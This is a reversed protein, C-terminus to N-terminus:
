YPAHPFQARGSAGGYSTDMDQHSLASTPRNGYPGSSSGISSYPPADADDEVHPRGYASDYSAPEYPHHSSSGMRGLGMESDFRGLHDHKDNDNDGGGGGGHIPAYEDDHPATSFADRDPDIMAANTPIRVGPLTGHNSYYIAGYVSIISTLVFLAFNFFGVGAMGKSLGCAGFCYGHRTWAAVAAFASLWLIAYIVDVAAFAYANGWKRSREFLPTLSNYIIAPISLFCLVFYWIIPRGDYAPRVLYAITVCGSVLVFLAQTGHLATKIRPLHSIIAM